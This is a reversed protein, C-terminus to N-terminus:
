NIFNLLLLPNTMQKSFCNIWLSNKFNKLHVYEAFIRGYNGLVNSAIQNYNDNSKINAIKLNEIISLKSRFLPGLFKGIFFGLNSSAKYGIFKFIMFFINIIIFQTIHNIKKM